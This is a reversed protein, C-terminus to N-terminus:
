MGNDGRLQKSLEAKREKIRSISLAEKIKFPNDIDEEAYMVPVSSAVLTGNQYRASAETRAMAFGPVPVLLAAIFERVGKRDPHPQWDGSLTCGLMKTVMEPTAFPNLAGAVWVEGDHEGIAVNAVVSCTNDYHEIRNSLTGYNETPAHGCNMTLVGTVVRGGGDVITEGKHFRSYDVNRTPVKTAVSRHTTNRPALLGYVRGEDTVTLAGSLNVDTPREFWSAPPLDPITITHSSATLMMEDSDETGDTSATIVNGNLYIRANDFAPFAVITAGRIRGSKFRTQRPKMTGPDYTMEIDADHVSDVDVSVGNMMEDDMLRYVEPGYETALDIIGAGYVLNGQRNISDIRGVLVSGEHGGTNAPQYMLPQPLQAWNLAGLNFMRGDGSEAGELTLIGEWEAYKPASFAAGAATLAHESKKQNPTRGTAEHYLNACLGDIYRKEVGEKRMERQCATFSGENGWGGVRASGKPGLWYRRLDPDLRSAATLMEDENLTIDIVEGGFAFRLTDFTIPGLNAIYDSVKTLDDSYAMTMHPLWPKFTEAFSYVGRVASMMNERPEVLPMGRMGLAIATGYDDTHPNLVMVSSAETHLPGSFYPLAALIIRERDAPSIDAAEGLFALTLHLEERPEDSHIRDLDLASPVLAIMAGTHVRPAAVLTEPVADTSLPMGVTPASVELPPTRWGEEDKYLAMVMGRTLSRANEGYGARHETVMQTDVNWTLMRETTPHVAIIGGDPYETEFLAKVRLYIPKDPTVTRGTRKDTGMAVTITM